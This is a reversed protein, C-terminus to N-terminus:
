RPEDGDLSNAPFDGKNGNRGKGIIDETNRQTAIERRVMAPMDSKVVSEATTAAVAEATEKLSSYGWVALLAVFIGLTTVLIAVATLVITVLTPGDFGAGDVYGRTLFVYGLAIALAVNSLTLLAKAFWRIKGFLIRMM